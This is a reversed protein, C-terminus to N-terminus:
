FLLSDNRYIHVNFTKDHFPKSEWLRNLGKDNIEKEYLSIVGNSKQELELIKSQIEKSQTPLSYTDITKYATHIAFLAIFLFFYKYKILTNIM